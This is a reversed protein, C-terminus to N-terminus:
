KLHPKKESAVFDQFVDVGACVTLNIVRMVQAKTM